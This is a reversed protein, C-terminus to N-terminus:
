VFLTPASEGGLDDTAWGAYINEAVNCIHSLGVQMDRWYRQNPFDTRIGSAGTVKFLRDIADM